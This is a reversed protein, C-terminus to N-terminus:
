PNVQYSVELAERIWEPMEEGNEKLRVADRKVVLRRSGESTGIDSEVPRKGDSSRSYSNGTRPDILYTRHSVPDTWVIDM